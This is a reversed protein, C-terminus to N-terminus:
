VAAESLPAGAREPAGSPSEARPPGETVAPTESSAAPAATARPDSPKEGVAFPGGTPAGGLSPQETPTSVGSSAVPHQQQQQQQQQQKQQQQAAAAGAAIQQKIKDIEQWLSSTYWYSQEASRARSSNARDRQQQQETM